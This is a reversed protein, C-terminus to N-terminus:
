DAFLTDIQLLEQIFQCVRNIDCHVAIRSSGNSHDMVRNLPLLSFVEQHDVVVHAFAVLGLTKAVLVQPSHELGSVHECLGQWVHGNSAVHLGESKATDSGHQESEM